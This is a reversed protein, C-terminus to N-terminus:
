AALRSRQALVDGLDLHAPAFHKNSGLAQLYKDQAQAYQKANELLRGWYDYFYASDLGARQARVMFSQMENSRNILGYMRALKLNRQAADKEHLVSAALLAPSHDDDLQRSAEAAFQYSDAARYGRNGAAVFSREANEYQGAALHVQGQAYDFSGATTFEAGSNSLFALAEEYGQTHALWSAWERFTDEHSSDLDELRQTLQEGIDQYHAKVLNLSTDADSPNLRHAAACSRQASLWERSRLYAACLNMYAKPYPSAVNSKNFWAIASTDDHLELYAAGINNYYISKDSDQRAEDVHSLSIRISEKFDGQAFKLLGTNMWGSNLHKDIAPQLSKSAADFDGRKTQVLGLYMSALPAQGPDTEIIAHLVTQARHLDGAQLLGWAYRTPYLEEGIYDSIKECLQNMEDGRVRVATYSVSGRDITVNAGNFAGKSDSGRYINVRILADKVRNLRLGTRLSSAFMRPTIPLSLFTAKEIEPIEDAILNTGARGYYEARFDPSPPLGSVSKGSGTPNSTARPAHAPSIAPVAHQAAQISGIQSASDRLHTQVCSQFFDRSYGAEDLPKPLESIELLPKPNVLAFATAGLFLVVSLVTASLWWPLAPHPHAKKDEPPAISRRYNRSNPCCCPTRFQSMKM